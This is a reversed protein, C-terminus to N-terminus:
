ESGLETVIARCTGYEVYISDGGSEPEAASFTWGAISSRTYRMADLNVLLIESPPTSVCSLGDAGSAGHVRTCEMERVGDIFAITAFYESEIQALQANLFANARLEFTGSNFVAAYFGLADDPQDHFGSAGEGTCSLPLEEVVPAIVETQANAGEAAAPEAAHVISVVSTFGALLVSWRARLSIRPRRKRHPRVGARRDFSECNM